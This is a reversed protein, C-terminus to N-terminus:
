KVAQKHIDTSYKKGFKQRLHSLFEFYEPKKEKERVANQILERAFLIDSMENETIPNTFDSLLM